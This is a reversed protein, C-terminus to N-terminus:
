SEEPENEQEPGGLFYVDLLLDFQFQALKQIQRVSFEPGGHGEKSLWYCWVRFVCGLQRLSEIRDRRPEIKDFLWELHDRLDRSNVHNKSSLRWLNLVYMRQSYASALQGKFTLDTPETDLHATIVQPDLEGSNISLTAYCRECTPYDLDSDGRTM